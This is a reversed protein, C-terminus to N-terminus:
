RGISFDECKLICVHCISSSQNTTSLFQDSILIVCVTLSSYSILQVLSLWMNDVIDLYFVWNSHSHVINWDWNSSDFTVKINRVTVYLMIAMSDSKSELLVAETQTSVSPFFFLTFTFGQCQFYTEVDTLVTWTASTAKLGSCRFLLATTQRQWTPESKLLKHLYLTASSDWRTSPRCLLLFCWWLECCLCLVRLHTEVKVNKVWVSEM